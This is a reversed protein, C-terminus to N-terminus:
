FLKIKNCKVTYGISLESSYNWSVPIEDVYLMGSVRYSNSPTLMLILVSLMIIKTIFKM